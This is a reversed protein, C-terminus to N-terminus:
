NRARYYIADSGMQSSHTVFSSTAICSRVGYHKKRKRVFGAMALLGLGFLWISDPIPVANLRIDDVLFNNGFNLVLKDIVSAQAGYYEYSGNLGTNVSWVVVGDHYGELVGFLSDAGGSEPPTGWKKAWLGDFTFDADTAETIVGTFNLNNLLAFDGSHAGWNSSSGEVDIWHLNGSFKFGKYINMVGFSNQISGGPVDDFTLVVAHANASVLCLSLLFLRLM